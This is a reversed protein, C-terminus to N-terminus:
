SHAKRKGVGERLTPGERRASRIGANVDEQKSAQRMESKLRDLEKQLESRTGKSTLGYGSIADRVDRKTVDAFDKIASHIEDVLGDVTNIGAKLRNKAMRGILLTLKGEPDLGALGSPQVGKVEARAQSFQVRLDAFDDALSEQRKGRTRRRSERALDDKIRSIARQAELNKQKEEHQAVQDQLEKIRNAQIEVTSRERTTLERKFAVKARQKMSALSYDDKIMLKRINLARANETGARKLAEDNADYAQEITGQEAKLAALLEDDGSRIADDIQAHIEDTRNILRMRDYGLASTESDNLPRPESAVDDALKRPDLRGEIVARKGDEYSQGMAKRAVSELRPLGRQAREAETVANRPSTTRAPVVEPEQTQHIKAGLSTLADAMPDSVPAPLADQPAGRPADEVKPTESLASELAPSLLEKPYEPAGAFKGSEDRPQFNSDHAPTQEPKAALRIKPKGGQAVEEPNLLVNGERDTVPQVKAERAALVSEVDPVIPAREIGLAEKAQVEPLEPTEKGAQHLFPLAVYPLSSSLARTPSEGRAVAEGVPIGALTTGTLVKQATGTINPALHPGLGFTAQTAAGELGGRLREEPTSGELVGLAPLQAAGLPATAALMMAGPVAEGLGAKFQDVRSTLPARKDAEEAAARMVSAKSEFGGLSEPLVSGVAQAARAAGGTVGRIFPSDVGRKTAAEGARVDPASEEIAKNQADLFEKNQRASEADAASLGGQGYANIYDIAGRSPRLYFSGDPDRQFNSDTLKLINQGTESKYRENLAVYEPGFISLFGNVAEDPTPAQGAKFPVRVREGMDGSKPPTYHESQLRALGTAQQSKKANLVNAINEVPNLSLPETIGTEQFQIPSAIRSAPQAVTPMEEGTEDIVRSTVQPTLLEKPEQPADAKLAALAEAMPDNDGSAQTSQQGLRHSPRGIHIHPGTAVGPIAHDFALFPIQEEQLQALLAQGEKSNPNLGIDASDHHDLNWKNHIAGQGRVSVPLDTGQTQKYLSQVEGLRSLSWNSTAPQFKLAGKRTTLPQSTETESEVPPEFASPERRPRNVRTPPRVPRGLSALAEAMPDLDPM